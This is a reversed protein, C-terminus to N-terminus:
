NKRGYSISREVRRSIIMLVSIIALYLGGAYLWTAFFQYTSGVYTKTMNTLEGLGIVSIISTDKITIIFQNVMAPVSIKIAQPLVVKRMTKWKGLGLSRAAETQGKPVAGIGGRYIEAMYASANISVTLIGAQLISMRTWGLAGILENVGFFIFYAQVIMPTGRIAWIYAEAISRPVIYNSLKMLCIFFGLILGIVISVVSVLVTLQLGKLMIPTAQPIVVTFDNGISVIFAVLREM